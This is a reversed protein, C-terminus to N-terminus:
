GAPCTQLFHCPRYVLTPKLEATVLCLQMVSCFGAASTMNLQTGLPPM